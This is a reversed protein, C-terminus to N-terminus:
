LCMTTSPLVLQVYMAENIDSFETGHHRKRSAPASPEYENLIAKKNIIMGQIKTHGCNFVEAIKRSSQSPNKNACKIVKVKHKLSLENKAAMNVEAHMHMFVNQAHEIQM